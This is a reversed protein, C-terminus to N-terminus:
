AAQASRAADIKSQIWDDVSQSVVASGRVGTKVLEVNGAKAERYFGANSLAMRARAEAVKELRPSDAPAIPM